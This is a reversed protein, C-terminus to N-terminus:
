GIDCLKECEYECNSPNWIFGKDCNGKDVSEKYGWRCKDDNCRQKNNCVSADESYWETSAVTNQQCILFFPNQRGCAAALVSVNVSFYDPSLKENCKM